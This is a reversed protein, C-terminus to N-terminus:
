LVFAPAKHLGSLSPAMAEFATTPDVLGGLKRWLVAKGLGGAVVIAVLRGGEALQALLAQPVEEVAGDVLVVDYPGEGPAGVALDNKILSVNTAAAAALGRSAEEVLVADSEVAVVKSVMRGLLAASYGTASAVVLAKDTAEPALLQVLRALTRPSMMARSPRGQRAPALVVEGDMYAVERAAAPVFAERPLEHMARIIRRDTVDSPRVQSEVMNKRQLAIDAMPKEGYELEGLRRPAQGPPFSNARVKDSPWAMQWDSM